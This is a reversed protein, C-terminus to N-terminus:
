LALSNRSAIEVCSTGLKTLIAVLSPPSLFDGTPDLPKFKCGISIRLTVIILSLWDPKVFEAAIYM